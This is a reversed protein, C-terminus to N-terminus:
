CCNLFGIDGLKCSISKSLWNVGDVHHIAVAQIRRSWLSDIGGSSPISINLIIDKLIDFNWCIM